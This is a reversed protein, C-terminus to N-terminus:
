AAEARQTLELLREPNWDPRWIPEGSNRLAPLSLRKWPEFEGEYAIATISFPKRTGAAAEGALEFAADRERSWMFEIALSELLRRASAEYADAIAAVTTLVLRRLELDDGKFDRIAALPEELPEFREYHADTWSPFLFWGRELLMPIQADAAFRPALLLPPPSAVFRTRAYRDVVAEFKKPWVLCTQRLRAIRAGEQDYIKAASATVERRRELRDLTAAFTVARRKIEAGGEVAEVRTRIAGAEDTLREVELQAAAIKSAAVTRAKIIKLSASEDAGSKQWAFYASLAPAGEEEARALSNRASSARAEVKALDGKLRPLDAPTANHDAPAYLDDAAKALTHRAEELAGDRARAESEAAVIRPNYGEIKITLTERRDRYARIADDDVGPHVLRALEAECANLAATEADLAKRATEANRVAEALAPGAKALALERAAIIGTSLSELKFVSFSMGTEALADAHRLNLM